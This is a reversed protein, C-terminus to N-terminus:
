LHVLVTSTTNDFIKLQLETPCPSYRISGGFGSNPAPHINLQFSQGVPSVDYTLQYNFGSGRVPGTAGQVLYYADGGVTPGNSMPVSSAPGFEIGIADSPGVANWTATDTCFQWTGALAAYIEDVSHLAQVTGAPTSCTASCSGDVVSSPGAGGAGGASVVGGDKGSLGAEGGRDIGSELCTNSTADCSWGPACPCPQGNSLSHNGVCGVLLALAFVPSFLRTM